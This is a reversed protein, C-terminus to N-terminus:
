NEVFNFTTAFLACPFMVPHRVVYAFGDRIQSFMSRSASPPFRREPLTRM